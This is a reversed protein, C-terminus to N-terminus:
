AATKRDWNAIEALMVPDCRDSLVQAYISRHMCFRQEFSKKVFPFNMAEQLAPHLQLFNRFDTSHAYALAAARWDPENRRALIPSVVKDRGEKLDANLQLLAALKDDNLDILSTFFQDSSWRAGVSFGLNSFYSTMKCECQSITWKRNSSISLERWYKLFNPSQVIKGKFSFAYSQLHAPKGRRKPQTLIAGYIDTPQTLVHDLFDESALTPFWVSDNLVLLREIPEPTELLHLIGDRYGGFDYGFNRRELMQFCYPALAVRDEDSLAANSVILCSFGKAALHRCTEFTSPLLGKPQYLLFVVVKPGRVQAGPTIRSTRSKSRDHMMRLVPASAMLFPFKVQDLTRRLERKVVWLPPM